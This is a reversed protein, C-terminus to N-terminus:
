RCKSLATRVNGDKLARLALEAELEQPSVQLALAQGQLKSKTRLDTGEAAFPESTGRPKHRTQAVEHAKICQERLDAVLASNSYDEFSLFVGFKEQLLFCSM